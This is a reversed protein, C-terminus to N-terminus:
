RSEIGRHESGKYILTVMNTREQSIILRKRGNLTAAQSMCHIFDCLSLLTSISTPHPPKCRLRGLLQSKLCMGGCGVLNKHTHPSLAKSYQGPQDRVM